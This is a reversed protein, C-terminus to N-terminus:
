FVVKGLIKQKQILHIDRSDFAADRNDSLVFYYEKLIKVPKMNDRQSFSIPFIRKDSFRKYSEELYKNNIFVKKNKLSITENPIGIIRSLFVEDKYDPHQILVIDGRQLSFFTKNIVAYVKDGKKFNPFMLNLKVEYNIILYFQLSYVLLASLFAALAIQFFIKKYNITKKDLDIYKYHYM